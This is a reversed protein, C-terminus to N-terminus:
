RPVPERLRIGESDARPRLRVVSIAPSRTMQTLDHTSPLDPLTSRVEAEMRARWGTFTRWALGMQRAATPLKEPGLLVIALVAIVILKAPDLNM